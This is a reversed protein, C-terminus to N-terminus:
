IWDSYNSRYTTGNKGVVVVRYRLYRPDANFAVPEGTGAANTSANYDTSLTSVRNLYTSSGVTLGGTSRYPRTGSSILGTPSASQTTTANSTSFQWEYTVSTVLYDGGTPVVNNWGWRLTSSGNARQFAPTAPKTGTIGTVASYAPRTGTRGAVQFPFWSSFSTGTKGRAWYTRSANNPIGPDDYPSTVGPFDPTASPEPYTASGAGFQYFIDYTSASGGSVTLTVKDKNDTTATFSTPPTVHWIAYLTVNSTFAYSASNAYTTGTGDAATAWNKFAFGTRTFPNATLNTATSAKQTTDAPASPTFNAKFTVTYETVAATWIAYLTESATPTRPWTVATTGGDTTAWGGFTFGTRTPDTPKAISGGVTSQTIDSVTTGSKSNFSITYLSGWKAYLTVDATLNYTTGAAYGTGNGASNTNWQVFGSGTKSFGNDALTVNGNGTTATTSGSTSTNGDYTITYRATPTAELVASYASKADKNVARVWFYKKTPSSSATYTYSKPSTETTGATSATPATSSTSTYVEFSTGADTSTSATGSTWSITINTATIGSSTPTNPVPPAFLPLRATVGGTGGATGAPFWNSRQTGTSKRVWFYRTFDRTGTLTTATFPSTKNPFDAFVQGDTPRIDDNAYFIDYQDGSGGSFTLVIEGTSVASSLSTPTTPASTPTASNSASSAVSTGNANTATVTYTRATGGIDTVSIPSSTGTGTNGSSSTVTFGTIASGGTAGATFSVSVTENGATATGITPAQPVTTVVANSSSASVTGTGIANIASVRFIYTAVGWPSSGLSTGDTWNESLTSWSTGSNSSYEVKYGTIASGGNAPATWSVGIEGNNYPRNISTVTATVGTVRGPVTASTQISTSFATTFTTGNSDTSKVTVKAYYTTGSSGGTWIYSWAGTSGTVSPLGTTITSILTQASNYITIESVSVYAVSAVRPGATGSITFGTSTATGVAITTTPIITSRDSTITTAIASDGTQGAGEYATIRGKFYYSPNTADSTTILYQNTNILTKTSSSTASIPTTSGYLLEYGYSSTNTWTGTNVTITSGASFNGTDTSLTPEFGATNEPIVNKQNKATVVATFNDDLGNPHPWTQIVDWWSNPVGTWSALPSTLVKGGFFIRFSSGAEIPISGGAYGTTGSDYFGPAIDSTSGLNAGREVIYVDCYDIAENNYFRIQYDLANSATAAANLLYSRFYLYYSSEDSYEALYIQELDKVFISLNKGSSMSTYSSSGSELGIHGNSSVYLTKGFSFRYKDKITASTPFSALSYNDTFGSHRTYSSVAIIEAVIYFGVDDPGPTYKSVGSRSTTSPTGTTTATITEEKVKTGGPSTTTSRWWRIYSSAPEVSNYYYNELTYNFSLETDVQETGTWGITNLNVAPERKIMKIPSSTSTIENASSINQVTLEYFLFQEDCATRMATTVGGASTFRDDNVITTRTLAGSTSGRTFKRGFKSTSPEYEGDKGFLDDNLFRPSIAAPGAYIDSTSSATRIEPAVKTDPLLSKFYVRVWTLTNNVLKKIFVSKIETWGTSKKIFVSKMETWGTSKKLFTKPM